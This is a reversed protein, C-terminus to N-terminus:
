REQAQTVKLNDIVMRPNEGDEVMYLNLIEPGDVTLEDSGYHM